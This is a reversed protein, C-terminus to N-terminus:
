KQATKAASILAEYEAFGDPDPVTAKRVLRPKDASQDLVDLHRPNAAYWADFAGAPRLMEGCWRDWALESADDGFAVNFRDRIQVRYVDVASKTARDYVRDRWITRTLMIGSGVPIKINAIAASVIGTPKGNRDTQATPKDSKTHLFVVSALSPLSIMKHKGKPGKTQVSVTSPEPAENVEAGEAQGELVEGTLENITENEM